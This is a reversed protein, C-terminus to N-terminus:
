CGEELAGLTLSVFRTFGERLIALWGRITSIDVPEAGSLLELEYDSSSWRGGTNRDMFFIQGRRRQENITRAISTTIQNYQAEPIVDEQSIYIRWTAQPHGFHPSDWMKTQATSLAATVNFSAPANLPFFIGEDIASGCDAIGQNVLHIAVIYRTTSLQPLASAICTFALLASVCIRSVM